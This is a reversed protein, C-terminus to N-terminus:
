LHKEETIIYWDRADANKSMIEQAAEMTTAPPVIVKDKYIRNHPWNAPTARQHNYSLQLSDILRLIEFINRGNSLPYFMISAVTGLPAIIFVARVTATSDANPHIMGYKEAVQQGAILPFKIIVKFNKEINRLWEIHSHIGDVSYGILKTNRAEFEKHLDQFAIFETTCVPTFDAPHSFLVVWSGQYDEPFNIPGQTSQAKFAPAIDGILPFSFNQTNM